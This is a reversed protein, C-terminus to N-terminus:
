TEFSIKGYWDSQKIKYVENIHDCNLGSFKPREAATPYETSMIPKILASLGLQSVVAKALQHWTTLPFDTYHYLGWREDASEKKEAQAKCIKILVEAISTAATPSGYQDAVVSLSEREKALRAITKVFNKGYPSFVWSVRLIIHKSWISQLAQEGALKSKGYVSVPNPLDGEDYLTEKQGDFVYDTSIHLLPLDYKKCAHALYEVALHNAAYAQEIDEEAKDVATYAAANMVFDFQHNNEFFHEVQKQNSIDCEERGIAVFDIAQASAYDQLCRGVQGNKGIILLRM